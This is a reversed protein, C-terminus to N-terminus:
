LTAPPNRRHGLGRQALSRFSKLDFGRRRRTVQPTIQSIHVAAAHAEIGLAIDGDFCPCVFFRSFGM